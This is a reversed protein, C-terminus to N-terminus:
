LSFFQYLSEEEFTKIFEIRAGLEPLKVSNLFNLDEQPFTIGFYYVPNTSLLIPLLQYTTEDRLPYRVTRHPFFIKDARDVIFVSEEETANLVSERVELSHDLEASMASLGDEGQWFVAYSNLALCAGMVGVLAFQKAGDVTAKKALWHISSAILPTSMVFLPLWYRVYSNAITIASPDPNDHFSWSGYMMGLWGVLVLFVVAYTRHKTRTTKMKKRRSFLLFFGPIALLSLWWFLSVLYWGMHELANRPHIGFPFLAKMPPTELFAYWALQADTAREVVVESVTPLVIEEQGATYGSGLMSGFTAEQFSLMPMMALAFAFLFVLTSKWYERRWYVVIVILSIVGMWFVESPRVFIASVFLGASLVLDVGGIWWRLIMKQVRNLFKLQKKKIKVGNRVGKFPRVVLFFVALLLLSVFLVNPMLSRASYYWWAPHTALLITALFAVRKPFLQKTTFYWSVIALLSIILTFWPIMFSGFVAALSGYLVPLGIFGSPILDGLHSLTSRPYFYDGLEQNINQPVRLDGTQAFHASFYANATEDPSIYIGEHLILITAGFFTVLLCTVILIVRQYKLIIDRM